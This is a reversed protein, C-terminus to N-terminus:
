PWLTELKEMLQDSTCRETAMLSVIQVAAMQGDESQTTISRKNCWRALALCMVDVDHPTYFHVM